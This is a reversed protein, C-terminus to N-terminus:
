IIFFLIMAVEKVEKAKGIKLKKINKYSIEICDKAEQIGLHLPVIM